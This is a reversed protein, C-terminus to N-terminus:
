TLARLLAITEKASMHPLYAKGIANAISPLALPDRYCMYMPQYVPQFKAKFSLLSRFGYVPELLRGLHDLLRQVPVESGGSSSDNAGAVRAMPAGSLSVYEAGEDKFGLAASAILFEMVGRFGDARRRMFDLTWAIPAGDRYVPMWSTVGHVLGDSDVAVLMRVDDDDLEALGGLTFGMEPLGKDAVWEESIAQIQERIGAPAAPYTWWQATIGAKGAKNIATRVDQWKKGQFSLGPLPISTEEAVQLASWGLADTATRTAPTVSYLCPTWSQTDCFAAFQAVAATRAAPRGIPDGVTVAVTSIVRYAVAASHDPNVWYSNGPWTAMYSLSTGGDEVLIHRTAAEGPDAPRTTRRFVLLLGVIAVLWFLIGIWVYLLKAVTGVPVYSAGVLQLPAPPLFRKPWSAVFDGFRAPPDFQDRIAHGVAFYVVSLAVAVGLLTFWFARLAAADVPREFRSRTLVLVVLVAVPLLTASVGYQWVDHRSSLGTARFAHLTQALQWAALVIFAVNALVATTWALRRGRRLGEALVLLLLAPVLSILLAPVAPYSHFARAARCVGASVETAPACAVRVERLSPPRTVVLSRLQTLPGNKNVAVTGIVPGIASTAVALAVLVRTEVYTPRVRRVAPSGPAAAESRFLRTGLTLGVLGGCLAIVNQLGALFLALIALGFVLVLRVRRRWLPTLRATLALAVGAAGTAPGVAWLHDALVSLWRSGLVAGLKVLAIAVAAGLVQFAVLLALTRRRGLRREAPTVTALVFVPGLVYSVIGQCWLGASLLTWVRGEALAQVGTGVDTLLGTPRGGPHRHLSPGSRLSGTAAGLLWLAVIYGLAVPSHGVARAASAASRRLATPWRAARLSVPAAVDDRVAQQLDSM